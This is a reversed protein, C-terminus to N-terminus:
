VEVRVACLHLMGDLTDQFLLWRGDATFDANLGHGGMPAYATHITAHPILDIKTSHIDFAAVYAFPHDHTGEGSILTGDRSVNIHSQYSVLPDSLYVEPGDPSALGVRTPVPAYECWPLARLTPDGRRDLYKYAIYRGDPWWINHTVVEGPEQPRVKSMATGDIRITWIRQCTAEHRDHSFMLYTPDTPSPVEYIIGLGDTHVLETFRGTSLDCAWLDAMRPRDFFCWLEEPDPKGFPNMPGGLETFKWGILTREDCTVYFRDCPHREPLRGIKVEQLDPLTLAIVMRSRTKRCYVRTGDASLQLNVLNSPLETLEGTCPNFIRRGSMINGDATHKPTMFYPMYFHDDDDRRSLLRVERGTHEDSWRRYYAPSGDPPLMLTETM